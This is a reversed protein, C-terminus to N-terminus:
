VSHAAPSKVLLGHDGLVNEALDWEGRYNLLQDDEVGDIVKRAESPTWRTRWTSDFQEYFPSSQLDALVSAAFILLMFFERFNEVV